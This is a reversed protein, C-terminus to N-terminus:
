VSAVAIDLIKQFEYKAKISNCWLRAGIDKTYVFFFFGKVLSKNEERINLIIAMKSM